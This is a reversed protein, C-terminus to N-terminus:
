QFWEVTKRTASLPATWGCESLAGLFSVDDSSDMGKRLRRVCTRATEFAAFAATAGESSVSGNEHMMVRDSFNTVRMSMNYRKALELVPNTSTPARVGDYSCQMPHTVNLCAGHIWSAGGNLRHGGFEITKLRGGVYNQAEVIVFNDVGSDHLQKAAAIGAMGAGMIIVDYMESHSRQPLLEEM